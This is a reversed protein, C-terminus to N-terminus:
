GIPEVSLIENQLLRFYYVRYEGTEFADYVQESLRFDVRDIRLNYNPINSNEGSYNISLEALGQVKKVGYGAKIQRALALSWYIAFFCIGFLAVFLGTIFVYTGSDRGMFFCVMAVVFAMFAAISSLATYLDTKPKLRQKQTESFFGDANRALDAENFPIAKGLKEAAAKKLTKNKPLNTDQIQLM